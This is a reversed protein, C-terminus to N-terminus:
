LILREIRAVALNFPLVMSNDTPAHFFFKTLEIARKGSIWRGSCRTANKIGRDSLCITSNGVITSAVIRKEMGTLISRRCEKPTQKYRGLFPRRFSHITKPRPVITAPFSKWPACVGTEDPDMILNGRILSLSLYRGIIRAGRAHKLPFMTAYFTGYINKWLTRSRKAPSM